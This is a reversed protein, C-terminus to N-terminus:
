SLSNLFKHSEAATASFHAGIASLFSLVESLSKGFDSVDVREGFKEALAESERVLVKSLLSSSSDFM